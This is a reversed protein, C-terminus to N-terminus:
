YNAVVAAQTEFDLPDCIDEFWWLGYPALMSAAVPGTQADYAYIADVALHPTGGPLQKAAAEIRKQDQALGASGIKIKAHTFGLEAFRRVEQSLRAIDDEPYVYGGAGYVRV